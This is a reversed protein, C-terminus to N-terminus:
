FIGHRRCRCSPPSFPREYQVRVVPSDEPTTNRRDYIRTTAISSHRLMEQVKKRDADNALTPSAVRRPVNGALQAYRLLREIAPLANEVVQLM